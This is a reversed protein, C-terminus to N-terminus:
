KQNEARKFSFEHRKIWETENVFQVEKQFSFTTQGIVYTFRFIADKSDNGDQGEVMTTIELSGNELQRKSTVHENNLRTGDESITYLESGNANPEDPYSMAFIYNRSKPVTSIDVNAPMTYPKGSTYDLYTLSGRWSGTLPEFDSVEIKADTQALSTTIRLGLTLMAIMKIKM